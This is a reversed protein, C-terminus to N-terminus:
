RRRVAAFVAATKPLTLTSGCTDCEINLSDSTIQYSGIRTDLASGGCPCEATITMAEANVARRIRPM